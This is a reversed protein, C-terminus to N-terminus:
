IPPQHAGSGTHVFPLFRKSGVSVRVGFGEDDQDYGTAISVTSDRSRYIDYHPIGSYYSANSKICLTYRHIEYHSVQITVQM